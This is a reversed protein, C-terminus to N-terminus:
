LCGETRFPIFTRISFGEDESLGDPFKMGVTRQGLVRSSFAVHSLLPSSKWRKVMVRYWSRSPQGERCSRLPNVHSVTDVLKLVSWNGDAM